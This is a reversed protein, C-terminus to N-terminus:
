WQKKPDFIKNVDIGFYECIDTMWFCFYREKMICNIGYESMVGNGLLMNFESISHIDVFLIVDNSDERQHWHFERGEVFKYLEIADMIM